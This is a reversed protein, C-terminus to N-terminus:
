LKDTLDRIIAQGLIYLSAESGDPKVKPDSLEIMVECAEAIAQWKSYDLDQNYRPLIACLKNLLNINRKKM